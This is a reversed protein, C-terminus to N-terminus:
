ITILAKIQAFISDGIGSVNLIENINKFSGVETRYAIISKAKAEGIGPLTMLQEKTANNISVLSERVVPDTNDTTQENNNATVEGENIAPETSKTETITSELCSSINVNNNQCVNIVPTEKNLDKKYFIRIVMENSIKKSLNINTTTGSSKLGGALKILDNVIKSCEVEFVGPKKVAGKVDVFCKQVTEEAIVNPTINPVLPNTAPQNKNKGFYFGISVMVLIVIILYSYKKYKLLFKM